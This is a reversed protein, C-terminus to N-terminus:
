LYQQTDELLSTEFEGLDLRSVDLNKIRELVEDLNGDPRLWYEIKQSVQIPLGYEELAQLTSDLFLNEIESKFFSYDGAALTRREFITKQISDVCALYKPFHFYAWSRIFDLVNEVAEDPGVEVKPNQLEENIIAKVRKLRILQNIKFTLQLGSSVGGIRKNDEVLYDWILNCVIKLQQYKPYRKWVLFNSYYQIKGEIEKALNIQAEPSIGANKRILALELFSQNFIPDLRHKAPESLDGKDIQVLLSEKASEDQTFMPIDVFPFEAQPPPNFLYVHGVFHQFMRGSRGRINNFTFYDFKRRAIRNDFVIVNKAKTNVGEILTSTCVLFRLRRDNFARVMFEAISRPIKGHHLGIGHALGRTLRWEEHFENGLWEVANGLSPRIRSFAADVLLSVVKNARAPSACYILTPEHLERCLELLQEERDDHKPLQHTESVVTAYDTSIFTCSFKDQFGPPIGRINPGLMYFQAGCRLLRYLAHNLTSSRGSDEGPNLKYFEDIVFFEINDLLGFEVVREPTLVFVNKELLKQSAHTIVKYRGRFRALRRRTEDILAITPVIIVINRFKEAAIVADIILSKGFSTPASLIVNEGDLIKRYVEGQVQHLVIQENDMNFPRHFEYAVLDPLSLANTPLYPFLGVTRVLGNLVLEAEGFHERKELARLILEQVTPLNTGNSTLSCLTQVIEFARDVIQESSELASKVEDVTMNVAM